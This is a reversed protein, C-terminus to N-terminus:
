CTRCLREGAAVHLQINVRGDRLAEELLDPEEHPEAVADVLSVLGAPCGEDVGGEDLVLAPGDAQGTIEDLAPGPDPSRVAGADIGEVVGAHEPPRSEHSDEEFGDVVIQILGVPPSLGNM